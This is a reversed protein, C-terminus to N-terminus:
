SPLLFKSKAGDIRTAQLKEDCHAIAKSSYASKPGTRLNLATPSCDWWTYPIKHWDRLPIAAFPPHCNVYRMRILLLIRGPVKPVKPNATRMCSINRTKNHETNSLFFILSKGKVESNKIKKDSHMHKV